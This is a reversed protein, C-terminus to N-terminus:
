AVGSLQDSRPRQDRRVGSGTVGMTPIQSPEGGQLRRVNVSRYAM